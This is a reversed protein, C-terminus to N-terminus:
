VHRRASFMGDSNTWLAGDILLCNSRNLKALEHDGLGALQGEWGTRQAASPRTDAALNRGNRRIAVGRGGSLPTVVYLRFLNWAIM